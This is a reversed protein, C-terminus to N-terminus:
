QLVAGQAVEQVEGDLVDAVGGPLGDLDRHGIVGVVGGSNVRRIGKHAVGAARFGLALIVQREVLRPQYGGVVGGSDERIIGGAM